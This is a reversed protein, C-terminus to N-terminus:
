EIYTPHTPPPPPPRLACLLEMNINLLVEQFIIFFLIEINGLACLLEMNINFPPPTQPDGGM